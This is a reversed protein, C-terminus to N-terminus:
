LRGANQHASVVFAVVLLVVVTRPKVRWWPRAVMAPTGDRADDTDTTQCGAGVGPGLDDSVAEATDQPSTASTFSPGERVEEVRVPQANFDALLGHEGTNLVEM